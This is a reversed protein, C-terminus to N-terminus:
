NPKRQVVCGWGDYDLGFLECLCVMFGSVSLIENQKIPMNVVVLISYGGDHEQVKAAGYRYEAIFSAAVEARNKDPARLLFEVDRSIYFHDGKQDLTVLLDTDKAAVEMLEDLVKM